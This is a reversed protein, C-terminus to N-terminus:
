REPLAPRWTGGEFVVRGQVPMSPCCPSDKGPDFARGRFWLEGSQIFIADIFRPLADSTQGPSSYAPEVFYRGESGQQVAFFVSRGMASGGDCGLRLDHVGVLLKRGGIEYPVVATAGVSENCGLTQVHRHIVAAAEQHIAAVDDPPPLAQALGASAGMMLGMLVVIPAAFRSCRYGTSCDNADPHSADDANVRAVM